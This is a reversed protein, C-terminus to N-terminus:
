RRVRQVSFMLRGPMTCMAIRRLGYACALTVRTSVLAARCRGFTTSANLPASTASICPTSAQGPLDGGVEDHREVGRQRSRPAAV